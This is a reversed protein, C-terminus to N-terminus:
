MFSELVKKMKDDLQFKSGDQYNVMVVVSSGEFIIKNKNNKSYLEHEIGFSSNGIHSIRTKIYIVDPYEIPVRYNCNFNALIPGIGSGLLVNETDLTKIDWMKRFLEVRSTECWKLYIINNVHSFSDLDGWLVPIETEVPWNKDSM